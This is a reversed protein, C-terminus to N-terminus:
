PPSPQRLLGWTSFCRTLGCNVFNCPLSFTFILVHALFHSLFKLYFLCLIIGIQLSPLLYKEVLFVLYRSRCRFMLSCCSSWFKDHSAVNLIFQLLSRADMNTVVLEPGAQSTNLWKSQFARPLLGGLRRETAKGQRRSMLKLLRRDKRAEPPESRQRHNVPLSLCIQFSLWVLLHPLLLYYSEPELQWASCGTDVWCKMSVMKCLHNLTKCSM